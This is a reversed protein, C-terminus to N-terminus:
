RYDSRRVPFGTTPKRPFGEAYAGRRCSVVQRSGRRIKRCVGTRANCRHNRGAQDAHPTFLIVAQRDKLLKGSGPDSGHNRGTERITGRKRRGIILISQVVAGGSVGVRVTHTLPTDPLKHECAWGRGGILRVCLGIESRAGGKRLLEQLGGGTAYLETCPQRRM